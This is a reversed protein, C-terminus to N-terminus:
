DSSPLFSNQDHDFISADRSMRSEDFQAMKSHQKKNGLVTKQVAVSHHRDWPDYCELGEATTQM